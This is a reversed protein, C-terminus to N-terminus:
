IHILSLQKSNKATLMILYVYRPLQAARIRRCLELGDMDPMMWDTVVLDVPQQQLLEWAKVGNPAENVECGMQASIKALLRRSVVDDDVILMKM